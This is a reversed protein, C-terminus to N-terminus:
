DHPTCVCAHAVRRRIASAKACARTVPAQAVAFPPVRARVTFEIRAVTHVATNAVALTHFLCHMRM